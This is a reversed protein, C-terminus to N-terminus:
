KIKAGTPLSQKEHEESKLINDELSPHFMEPAFTPLEFHEAKKISINPDKSPPMDNMISPNDHECHPMSVGTRFVLEELHRWLIKSGSLVAAPDIYIDSLVLAPDEKPLVAFYFSGAPLPSNLCAKMLRSATKFTSTFILVRFDSLGFIPIGSSLLDMYRLIKSRLFYRLTETGNDYEIALRYDNGFLTFRVLADPIITAKLQSKRLEHDSLFFNIKGGRRHVETEFALRLTNIALFHNWQAPPRRSLYIKDEPFETETIILNKGKLGLRYLKEETRHFQVATLYGAGTLKKLRKNLVKRAVDPFFAYQLQSTSLWGTVALKLFLTRDRETIRIM